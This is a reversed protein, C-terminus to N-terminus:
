KKEAFFNSHKMAGAVFAEKAKEEKTKDKSEAEKTGLDKKESDDEADKVAKKAYKKESLELIQAQTIAEGSAIGEKVVKEDVGVFFNWALIRDREAKVAKKENEIFEAYLAPHEVKLEALTMTHKKPTPNETTTAAKSFGNYEAVMRISTAEIEATKAPTIDLVKDVLGIKKAQEVTLYVDKVGDMSFVEDLTCKAIKEFLPVNIKKELAARLKKNADEIEARRAETFMADSQELWDPYSARHLLFNATRYAHVEDAFACFFIGMSQAKGDVMVTKKNPFEAFKNITGMAYDVDGGNTNVRVRLDAKADKELIDNISTIFRESSYSYIQGYLLVERVM